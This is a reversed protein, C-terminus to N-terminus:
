RIYSRYFYDNVTAITKFYGLSTQDCISFKYSYQLWKNKVAGTSQILADMYMYHNNTALWKDDFGQLCDVNVLRNYGSDGTLAYMQNVHTSEVPSWSKDAEGGNGNATVKKAVSYLSNWVNLGLNVYNGKPIVKLALNVAPNEVRNAGDRTKANAIMRYFFDTSDEDTNMALQMDRLRFGSDGDAYLRNVAPAYYIMYSWIIDLRIFAMSSNYPDDKPAMNIVQYGIIVSVVKNELYNYTEMYYGTPDYSTPTRSYVNEATKFKSEGVYNVCPAIANDITSYARTSSLAQSAIKSDQLNSSNLTKYKGQQERVKEPDVRKNVMAESSKKNISREEVENVDIHTLNKTKKYQQKILHIFWNANASLDPYIDDSSSVSKAVAAVSQIHLIDSQQEVSYICNKSKDYVAIQTMDCNKLTNEELLLQNSSKGFSINMITYNNSSLINAIYKGNDNTNSIIQYM